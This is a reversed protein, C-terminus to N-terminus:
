IISAVTGHDVFDDITICWCPAATDIVTHATFSFLIEQTNLNVVFGTIRMIEKSDNFSFPYNIGNGRQPAPEDAGEPVIAPFATTKHAVYGSRTDKSSVSYYIQPLINGNDTIDNMTLTIRKHDLAIKIIGHTIDSLEHAGTGNIGIRLKTQKPRTIM